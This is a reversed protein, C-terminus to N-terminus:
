DLIYNMNCELIYDKMFIKMRIQLMIHISHMNNGVM